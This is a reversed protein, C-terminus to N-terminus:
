VVSPVINVWFEEGAHEALWDYAKVSEEAVSLGESDFNWDLWWALRAYDRDGEVFEICGYPARVAYLGFSSNPAGEPAIVLRALIADRNPPCSM